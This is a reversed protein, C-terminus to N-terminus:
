FRSPAADSVPPVPREAASEITETGPRPGPVIAEFSVIRQRHGDEAIEFDAASLGAVPVGDRDTVVVDVVVRAARVPFSPVAQAETASAAPAALVLTALFLCEPADDM